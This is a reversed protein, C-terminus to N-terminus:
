VSSSRPNTTYANASRTWSYKKKKRKREKKRERKNRLEGRQTIERKQWPPLLEVEPLNVQERLQHWSL